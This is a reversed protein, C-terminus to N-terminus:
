MAGAKGELVSAPDALGGGGGSGFGHQAFEVPSGCNWTVLMPVPGCSALAM